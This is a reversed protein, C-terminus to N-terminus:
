RGESSSLSRRGLCQLLIACGTGLATYRLPQRLLRLRGRHSKFRPGRVGCDSASVVRGSRGTRINYYTLLKYYNNNNYNHTHTKIPRAAQFLPKM